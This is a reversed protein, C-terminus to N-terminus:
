GQQAYTNSAKRQLDYVVEIFKATNAVERSVTIMHTLETVPKVNSNEIVGQTVHIDDVEAQQPTVESMYLSGGAHRVLQENDFKVVGITTFDTGNLKINGAAGIEITKTDDPFVIPQGGTDLVPYGDATILTGSGDLQFNGSRTYRTGLPTQVPFYGNGNIALDLPNGTAKLSGESTDRFTSIDNAFAMPNKDGQNIDHTLYSDFIIHQAGYGSTNANAINGSTVDMDRFLALQRSLTVYISNDM